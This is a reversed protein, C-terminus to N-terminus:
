GKNPITTKVNRLWKKLRRFRLFRAGTSVFRKNECFRRKRKLDLLRCFFMSEQVELVDFFRYSDINFVYRIDIRKKVDIERSKLSGLCFAAHETICGRLLNIILKEVVFCKKGATKAVGAGASACSRGPRLEVSFGFGESSARPFSVVVFGLAVSHTSHRLWSRPRVSSRRVSPRVSQAGLFRM